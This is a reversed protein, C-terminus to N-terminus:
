EYGQLKLIIEQKPASIIKAKVTVENGYAYPILHSLADQIDEIRESADFGDAVWADAVKMEIEIKWTRM